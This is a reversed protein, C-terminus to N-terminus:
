MTIETTNAETEAPTVSQAWARISGPQPARLETRLQMLLTGLRNTGRGDRGCGWYADYPSREVLTSDGTDLLVRRLNGHQPFKARLARYMVADRIEHWAQEHQPTVNAQALRKCQMPTAATRVREYMASHPPFKCAQYYHESSPWTKGDMKISALWFNSFVGYPKERQNYFYVVVPVSM